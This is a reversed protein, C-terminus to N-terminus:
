RREEVKTWKVCYRAPSPAGSLEGYWVRGQTDLGMLGVAGANGQVVVQIHTLGDM